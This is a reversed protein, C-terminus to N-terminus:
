WFVAIDWKWLCIQTRQTLWGKMGCTSGIIGVCMICGTDVAVIHLLILLEAKWTGHECHEAVM